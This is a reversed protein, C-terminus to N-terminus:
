RLTVRAFKRKGVQVVFCGPAVKLTKDSVVDGDIRVGGQEVMRLGESTSPVLGAQKLLAGIALPGGTLAVEPVEDPVGGAARRQFDEEAAKAAAAGHFRATIEHALLVKADKPNRGAEVERKLAAIEAASRFSLLTFWKWMQADSISLVKAFMTNAPETIGIYNGKSKSMKEVGDLGELLPMTLVCQPEQGYEQQL